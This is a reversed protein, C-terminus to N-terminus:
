GTMRGRLRRRTMGMARSPMQASEQAVDGVAASILRSALDALGRRAPSSPAHETLSRGALLASDCAARDDPVLVPDEVGAYRGLAECIRRQPGSGVASSRVRTVVVRPAASPVVERLESLGRVLRQLGVPDGAGVALVTDAEELAALTAANRRPAATDFSLEEDRELCFGCDVVVWRAVQRAVPWMAELATAGVEPWRSARGIGTLVRLGESVQPALRALLEPELSGTSAARCAAALGPAEDLVGLTQAISAAYTDADVLLTAEGLAALEAALTVAVTTRGPAGAPGWVAVVQGVPDQAGAHTGDDEDVAAYPIPALAAAPDALAAPDPASAPLGVHGARTAEQVGDRLDRVATEVAQAIEEAPADAPLVHGVGLARLRHGQQEEGPGHLGVVALGAAALHALADRDLRRLDASLIVAQAQGTAASALLDALDVCRRVVAVGTPASELGSVLPAEWAGTIATLVPLKV